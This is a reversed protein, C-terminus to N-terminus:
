FIRSPARSPFVEEALRQMGCRFYEFREALRKFIDRLGFETAHPSYAAQAYHGRGMRRYFEMSVPRRKYTRRYEVWPACVGSLYLSYNGIHANVLFQREPGSELGERMLDALYEYRAAEDQQLQYIRETRSFLGLLNALYHIVSRELKDRPGPLARRLMVDFFLQPSVDLWQAQRDMLAEHVFRSELISELTNPQEHVRRVAEVPDVGPVPFHEFLFLLDKRDFQSPGMVAFDPSLMISVERSFRRTTM